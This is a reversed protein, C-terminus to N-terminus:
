LINRHKLRGSYRNDPYDRPDMHPREFGEPGPLRERTKQGGRLPFTGETDTVFLRGEMSFDVDPILKSRHRELTM